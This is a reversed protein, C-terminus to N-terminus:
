IRWSREVTGISMDPVVSYQPVYNTDAPKDTIDRDTPGPEIRYTNRARVPAAMGYIDFTRRHDAMSFHDGTFHREMRADFPREFYYTNPGMQQTPRSEGPNAPRPAAARGSGGKRETWGISKTSTVSERVATNADKNRWWGFVDRLNPRSDVRTRNDLRDPDATVVGAYAGVPSDSYGNDTWPVSNDYEPNVTTSPVGTASFPAPANGAVPTSAM